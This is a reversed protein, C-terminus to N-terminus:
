TKYRRHVPTGEHGPLTGKTSSAAEEVCEKLGARPEIRCGDLVLAKKLSALLHKSKKEKEEHGCKEYMGDCERCLDDADSVRHKDLLLSALAFVDHWKHIPTGGKAFRVRTGDDLLIQYNKPSKAEGDGCGFDFDILRSGDDDFVCNLARIDGHVCGDEHLRELDELLTLAQAPSTCVHHGKHFPVAIVQFQAREDFLHEAMTSAIQYWSINQLAGFNLISANDDTQKLHLITKANLQHHASGKGVYLAPSRSTPHV